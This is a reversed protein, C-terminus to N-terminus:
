ECHERATQVDRKVSDFEIRIVRGDVAMKLLYSRMNKIGSQKMRREIMDREDATVMFHINHPRTKGAM